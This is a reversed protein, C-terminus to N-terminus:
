RPKIEAIRGLETPLKASIAANTSALVFGFYLRKLLITINFSYTSTM